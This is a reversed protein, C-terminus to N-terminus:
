TIHNIKNLSLPMKLPFTSVYTLVDLLTIDETM